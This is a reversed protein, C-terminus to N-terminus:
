RAPGAEDILCAARVAQLLKEPPDTKSVFADVEADLAAQRAEARASLAIVKLRPQLRRLAAVGGAAMLGPLEWDLLVLTPRDARVKFLLEAMNVAETLHNVHMKRELALALASRIAAKDDALVISIM